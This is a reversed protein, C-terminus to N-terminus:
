TSSTNCKEVTVILVQGGTSGFCNAMSGIDISWDETVHGETVTFHAINVPFSMTAEVQLNERHNVFVALTNLHKACYVVIRTNRM